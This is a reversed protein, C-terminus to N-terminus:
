SCVVLGLSASLAQARRPLPALAATLLLAIPTVEFLAHLAGRGTLVTILVIAPLHCALLSCVTRHRWAFESETLARGQPLWGNARPRGVVAEVPAAPPSMHDAKSAAPRHVM